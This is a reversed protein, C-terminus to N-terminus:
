GRFQIRKLPNDVVTEKSHGIAPRYSMGWYKALSSLFSVARTRNTTGTTGSAAIVHGGKSSTIAMSTGGTGVIPIRKRIAAAIAEKNTGNPDASMLIIGDIHGADIQQ